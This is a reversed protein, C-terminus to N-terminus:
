RSSKPIAVSVPWSIIILLFLILLAASLILFLLIVGEIGLDGVFAAVKYIIWLLFVVMAICAEIGM